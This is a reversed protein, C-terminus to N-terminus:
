GGASPSRRSRRPSRPLNARARGPGRRARVLDRRAEGPRQPRVARRLDAADGPRPRARARDFSDHTRAFTRVGIQGDSAGVELLRYTISVVAGLYGFGGIVGRFVRQERTLEDWGADRLRRPAIRAARRGHHPPRLERGVQGGEWLRALVALPLRGLPHRWGHRESTTVTIAPVLGDPETAAFIAGWRAGPGVRVRAGDLLEISDLRLTSVVLDDGIPQGDFSHGAGRMTVRRGHERAYAFVQRLQDISEPELIWARGAYLGTYCGVEGERCRIGPLGASPDEGTVSM